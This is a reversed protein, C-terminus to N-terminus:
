HSTLYDNKIKYSEALLVEYNSFYYGCFCCTEQLKKQIMHCNHCILQDGKRILHTLM